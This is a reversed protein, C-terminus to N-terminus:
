TLSLYDNKDFTISWGKCCFLRPPIPLYRGTMLPSSIQLKAGDLTSM